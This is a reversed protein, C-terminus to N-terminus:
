LFHAYVHSDRVRWRQIKLGVSSLHGQVSKEGWNPYQKQIDKVTLDLLEDDIDSYKVSSDLDYETIRRRVTRVCCGLIKAMETQKFGHELLFVLQERSVACRPRGRRGQEPGYEQLSRMVECEERMCAVVGNVASVISRGDPLISEVYVVDRLIQEGSELLRERDAGQSDCFSSVLQLFTEVGFLFSLVEARDAMATTRPATQEM